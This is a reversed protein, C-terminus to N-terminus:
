WGLIGVFFSNNGAVNEVKAECIFQLSASRHWLGSGFSSGVVSM